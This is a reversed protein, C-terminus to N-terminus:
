IRRGLGTDTPEPRPLTIGIEDVQQRSVKFRRESGCNQCWLETSLNGGLRWEAEAIEFERSGCQECVIEQALALSEISAQEKEPLVAQRRAM